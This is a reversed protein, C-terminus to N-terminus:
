PVTVLADTEALAAPTVIEGDPPPLRGLRRRALARGRPGLELERWRQPEVLAIGLARSFVLFILESCYLRADGWEFRADYPRGLLREGERTLAVLDDETLTRELRRVLVRGGIAHRRWTELPTWQVPSVAELVQLEGDHSLVIGVHSWPSRTVERIVQAQASRSSMFLVDGARIEAFAPSTTLLVLVVIALRM